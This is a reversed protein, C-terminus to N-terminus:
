KVLLPRWWEENSLYWDLTRQLGTEFSEHPQYGLEGMIRSADIAYRWDHGARDEVFTILERASRGPILPMEVSTQTGMEARGSQM